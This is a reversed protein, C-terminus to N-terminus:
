AKTIERIVRRFDVYYHVVKGSYHSPSKGHQLTTVKIKAHYRDHPVINSVAIEVAAAPGSAMVFLDNSKEADSWNVLYPRKM